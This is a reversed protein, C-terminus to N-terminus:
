NSKTLGHELWQKVLMGLKRLGAKWCHRELVREVGCVAIIWDPSHDSEHCTLVPGKLGLTGGVSLEVLGDQGVLLLQVLRELDDAALDIYSIHLLWPRVM